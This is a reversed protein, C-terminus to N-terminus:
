ITRLISSVNATSKATNRVYAQKSTASKWRCGRDLEAESCGAEVAVTAASGRFSHLTINKNIGLKNVTEKLKKLADDYSWARDNGSFSPFLFPSSPRDKYFSPFKKLWNELMLVPCYESNLRTIYVKEPEGNQNAKSKLLTVTVDNEKFALNVKRLSLAEKARFFGSFLLIVLTGIRCESREESYALPFFLKLEEISIQEKHRTPPSRRAIAKTVLNLYPSPQFSTSGTANKKGYFSLAATITSAKSKSDKAISMLYLPLLETDPIQTERALSDRWSLYKKYESEYIKRTSEALGALVFDDIEAPTITKGPNKQAIRKLRM